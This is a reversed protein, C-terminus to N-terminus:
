NHIKAPFRFECQVHRVQAPQFDPL